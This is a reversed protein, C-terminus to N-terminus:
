WSFPSQSFIVNAPKNELVGMLNPSNYYQLRCKSWCALVVSKVLQEWKAVEPSSLRGGRHLRSSTLSLQVSLSTSSPWHLVQAHAWLLCMLHQGRENPTSQLSKRTSNGSWDFDKVACNLKYYSSYRHRTYGLRGMATVHVSVHYFFTWIESALNQFSRSTCPMCALRGWSHPTNRSAPVFLTKLKILKLNLKGRKPM